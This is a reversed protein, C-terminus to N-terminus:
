LVCKCFYLYNSYINKFYLSYFVCLRYYLYVAILGVYFNDALPWFIPLSKYTLACCPLLQAQKIMSTLAKEYSMVRMKRLGCHETRVSFYFIRTDYEHTVRLQSILGRLDLSLQFSQSTCIRFCRLSYRSRIHVIRVNMYRQLHM